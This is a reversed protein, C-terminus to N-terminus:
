LGQWSDSAKEEDILTRREIRGNRLWQWVRSRYRGCDSLHIMEYLYLDADGRRQWYLVVSRRLDDVALEAAWGTILETDFWIRGDRWTAPFDREERRGDPWRYRNTQHYPHPGGAPFRCILRSAHEDVLVGAADFHRYVGDWVGEHRALVPMAQKLDFM